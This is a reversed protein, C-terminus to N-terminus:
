GGSRNRRTAGEQLAAQANVGRTTSVRSWTHGDFEWALVDDALSLELIEDLRARLAAGAIPLAIEVRRDLNRPMLDASSILYEADAGEGFRYIRSHELYRGVLSRVRLRQPAGCAAPNLACMGRVILDVEAGAEVAEYLTEIIEPDILGNMKLVIRGGPRSERHILDRLVSRLRQPALIIRRYQVDRSYGSL